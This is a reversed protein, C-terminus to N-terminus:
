VHIHERLISSILAHEECSLDGHSGLVHVAREALSPKPRRAAHLQKSLNSGSHLHIKMWLRCAELEQDAGWRAALIALEKDESSFGVGENHPYTVKEIWTQIVGDHPLVPHEANVM